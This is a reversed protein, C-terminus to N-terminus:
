SLVLRVSGIGGVGAELADGKRVTVHGLPSGSLVVDGSTLGWLRSVLSLLDGIPRIMRSTNESIVRQNGVHLWMDSQVPDLARRVPLVSNMVLSGPLNVAAGPGAERALAESEFSIAVSWGWVCGLAQEPTVARACQGIVAALQVSVTCGEFREGWALEAVGKGPCEFLTTLARSHMAFAGTGPFNGSCGYIANVPFLRYRKDRVSLACQPSPAVVFV